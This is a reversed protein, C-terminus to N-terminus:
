TEWRTEAERQEFTLEPAKPGQICHGVEPHFGGEVRVTKLVPNKNM